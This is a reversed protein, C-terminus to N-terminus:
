GVRRLRLAEAAQRRRAAHILQLRQAAYAAVQRAGSEHFHTNDQIGGSWFAHEDPGFHTFLAKSGQEGLETYLQRTWTNLDVLPVALEEGLQRVVAPYEGLTHELVGGRFARREVSTCLVPVASRGRVDEVMRWLNRRYGSTAALHELKQDNHGFQIVVLDGEGAAALLADWLGEARFSETTAGGKAFNHVAGWSYTHYALHAGWGSMPYEYTPCSAVTSDGALLIKM